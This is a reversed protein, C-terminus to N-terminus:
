SMMAGISLSGDLALVLMEKVYFSASMRRAPCVRMCM